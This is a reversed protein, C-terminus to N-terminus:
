LCSITPTGRVAPLSILPFVSVMALLDRKMAYLDMILCVVFAVSLPLTARWKGREQAAAVLPVALALSGPHLLTAALLGAGLRMGYGREGMPGPDSPACVLLLALASGFVGWGFDSPLRGHTWLLPCIVALLAVVFALRAGVGLTRLAAGLTPFALGLSLASLWYWATEIGVGSTGVFRALAHLPELWLAGGEAAHRTAGMAIPELVPAGLAMVSLGLGGLVWAGLHVPQDRWDSQAVAELIDERPFLNGDQAIDM